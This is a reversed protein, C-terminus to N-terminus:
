GPISLLRLELPSLLGLALRSRRELTPWQEAPTESLSSPSTLCEDSSGTVSGPPVTVEVGDV